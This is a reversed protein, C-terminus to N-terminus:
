EPWELNFKVADIMSSFYHFTLGETYQTDIDLIDKENDISLAIDTIGVRKAALTKERLGGVPTLRGRLTIEGTMALHSRMKRGTFLSVLATLMTIGASPGDKPIAGEPVHIYVDRDKFSNINLGFIAANSKLYEYAITASEKMVDGLNGTLSLGGKGESYASEIYLVDGGVPTWALGVAVGVHAQKFENKDIHLPVGLVKEVDEKKLRKPAEQGDAILYAQHRVVKAINKELIRVGAERTYKEIIDNIIVDSFSIDSKRLGHETIQRPVLHRKAIQLKEEQLYSNLEIIEMRDVLAPQISSLSNATAIFLVKSLDFTSELFNDYFANNQEPDLVELMASSPDGQVTMGSIKDIEDLVFVPNASHAKRLLQIIRGPMAGVYTKRHGRIEAEDHLGGLSMRVYKRGTAAAISKGLSTKGVGPPGVFCLIPAKMDERLKLVALYEIIRDKIKELGYHDRDLVTRAKKLDVVDSDWENWPLDLFVDLYNVQVTYDPSMPHLRQLKALEKEFQAKTANSWKKHRAKEHMEAILPDGNNDADLNELEDQIAKMQQNLLYEKQQKDMEEKAKRQINSKLEEIKLCQNQEELVMNARKLIDTEVLINQKKHLEIPLNSAIFNVMFSPYGMNKLAYLTESSMSGGALQLYKGTSEGLSSVTAKFVDSGIVEENYDNTEMLVVNGKMYPKNETISNLHCLRLGQIIVTTGGDPMRFLKLIKSVVGVDYLDYFDPNEESDNVQSFVAILSQKKQADKVLKLSKERGVSVPLVIGPFMVTNRLPLIPIEDPVECKGLESIEVPTLFSVVEGEGSLLEKIINEQSM